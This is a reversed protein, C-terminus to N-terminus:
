SARIAGAPSPAGRTVRAAAATRRVRGLWRLALWIGWVWALWSLREPWTLTRAVHLAFAPLTLAMAAGKVLPLRRRAVVSVARRRRDRVTRRIALDVAAQTMHRWGPLRVLSWAGPSIGWGHNNSGAILAVDRGGLAADLSKGDMPLQALARPSGDFSEVADIEPHTRAFGAHGPLTLLLLPADGGRSRVLAALQVLDLDGNLFAASDGETVGIAVLHEGGSRLEVGPLLLPGGDAPVGAVPTVRSHDTIYAVDFGTRAHWRRNQELTFDRWGDWSASTHSHFDVRAVDADAVSLWEVPRPMLLGFAYTFLVGAVPLATSRVLRLVGQRRWREPDSVSRHWRIVNWAVLAIIVSVAVAVHQGKSLVSLADFLNCIPALAIYAPSQQLAVSTAGVLNPSVVLPSLALAAGALLLTTLVVPVGLDSLRVADARASVRRRRRAWPRPVRPPRPASEPPVFTTLPGDDSVPAAVSPRLVDRDGHPTQAFGDLSAALRVLM